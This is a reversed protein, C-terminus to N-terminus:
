HRNQGEISVDYDRYIAQRRSKAAIRGISSRM